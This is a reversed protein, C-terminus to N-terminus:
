ASADDRHPRGVFIRQLDQATRTDRRARRAFPSAPELDTVREWHAMAEDYRHAEALLVATFYLAGVHDGDFRLVRTFAFRADDRRGALFLSEGLSALADLHYPDSELFTALLDITELARATERRLAALALVADGYTPVSVLAAELEREADDLLGAARLLEALQVRCAAFDEDLAIAHRYSEIALLDDGVVHAVRGIAQLVDPRMPALRRARALIAHADDTADTEALVDAVLLLADVDDAANEEVWRAVDIADRHRRLMALSRLEGVAAARLTPTLTRAERFRELAEGAAGHALFVDGLAVLGLDRPAGEAIARRLEAAARELSGEAALALGAAFPTSGRGAKLPQHEPAIEEFLRELAQPEFAFEDVGQDRREGGLDPAVELLPDEFELDVALEFKQPTYYPDLELARKTERLSGAFDGLNSLAFSLNYHAEAYGPRAEVARAFANRADEFKRLHSLVLGVGNWAVPHEPALRLVQRYAELCNQHDDQRFLLLALNLRGKLFGPEEQLARRFADFARDPRGAHDHAVGLNNLALVYHEDAAIAREYSAAADAHRGDQHLAIGRENWLKPSHPLEQLLRDYLQVAAASEKRLLHVEAMAQLVLTRDEGRDLALRYERLAEALYGKQRFALGLNFHALQGDEAVHMQDPLGRAERAERVREYSRADFRELSLNAQAKGLAPNRKMAERSAERAEEHRGLDGLVFAMLYMADADDPALQVARQLHRLAEDNLGRHYATQGLHVHLDARAPALQVAHQLWREAHEADGGAGEALALQLMADVDDPDERLLAGFADAAQRTDGLLAYTRGLEWRAARDRPHTALRERLARLRADYYGSNFYAIELNRQAITMRPDLELARTFAAVAEATMGKNFYLVGLNNHAGADGADIRHAFSRLVERDRESSLVVTM